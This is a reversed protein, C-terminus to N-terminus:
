PRIEYYDNLPNQFDHKRFRTFGVEEVV